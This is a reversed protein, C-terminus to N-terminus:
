DSYVTDGGKRYIVKTKNGQIEEGDKNGLKTQQIQQTHQIKDGFVDGNRKKSRVIENNQSKYRDLYVLYIINNIFCKVM